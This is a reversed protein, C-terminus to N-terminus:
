KTPKTPENKAAVEAAQRADSEAQLKAAEDARDARAQKAKAGKRESRTLAAEQDTEDDNADVGMQQAIGKLYVEMIEEPTQGQQLALAELARKYKGGNPNGDYNLNIKAM